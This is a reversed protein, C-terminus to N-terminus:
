PPPLQKIKKLIREHLTDRNIENVIRCKVKKKWTTTGILSQLVSDFSEFFKFSLLWICFFAAACVGIVFCHKM